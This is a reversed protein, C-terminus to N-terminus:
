RTVMSDSQLQLSTTPQVDVAVVTVNDPAGRDLTLKIMRAVRQEPDAEAMLQEIDSRELRATLGDSCLLFTDGGETEDAIVDVEVTDRVGMARALIHSMPHGEADEPSLLGRDVMEQVQTHDHSIQILEGDRRLYARSDGVWLVAFRGDRVLLAVATSGMQLGRGEAEAFIIANARHLADAVALSAADFDAPLSVARLTDAICASAWEGNEHGGMGDAVLFLGDAPRVCFADENNARVCGEHTLAAHEIRTM